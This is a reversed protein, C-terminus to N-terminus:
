NNSKVGITIPLQDGNSNVPATLLYISPVPPLGSMVYPSLGGYMGCDVGGVGAGLALSNPALKWQGENTGATNGVFLNLINVGNQNGNNAPLGSNSIGINNYVANSAGQVYAAYNGYFINNNVNFNSVNSYLTQGIVNNSIVGSINAHLSIFEPLYNNTIVLNSITFSGSGSLSNVGNTLFFNQTILVNSFSPGSSNDLYVGGALNNRSISVNGTRIANNGTSTIGSIVTGQSGPYLDFYNIKASTINQQQNQNQNLYYGPGIIILKKTSVLSGYTTPSPEIHLTDGAQVISTDHAQQLSTFNAPIGTNNIRWIKASADLNSFASLCLAIIFIRNM